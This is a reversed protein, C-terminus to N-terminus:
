FSCFTCTCTDNMSHPCVLMMILLPYVKLEQYMSSSYFLLQSFVFGGKMQFNNVFEESM